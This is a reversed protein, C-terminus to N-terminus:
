EKPALLIVGALVALLAVWLVLARKTAKKAREAKWWVRPRVGQVFFTVVGSLNVCIVNASLLLLAGLALDPHGAGLLLGAAVLPPLLAVAVMVGIIASPLGSTFALTGAAGAALALAIDAPGVHTRSAVTQVHPDVGLVHGILVSLVAAIAVGVAQAKLAGKAMAFDGLTTALALTVNPSLLPAIVMAGILVVLDDRLLGIAAVVASLGTMCLFVPTLQTGESVETYLEERSVRYGSGDIRHLRLVKDNEEPVQRPLSAEVPLLVVRFEETEGFRQQVADM